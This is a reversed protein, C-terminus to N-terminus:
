DREYWSHRNTLFYSIALLEADLLASAGKALLKERPRTEKPMATLQMNM